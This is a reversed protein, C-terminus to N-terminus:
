QLAGSQKRKALDPKRLHRWLTTRHIGLYHAAAQISGFSDVLNQLSESSSFIDKPIQPPFTSCLETGMKQESREAARNDAQLLSAALVTTLIPEDCIASIRECFNKLERVNGPWPYSELYLKCDDSIQPALGCDDSEHLMHHILPLIDKKRERLPPLYLNLVNLRWYLDNRFQGSKILMPLDRNTAAIIRVDVPIIKDDGLRMVQHEQLVRLLRAQLHFPMESIEDLFITGGHALEFLGPKGKKRAGTFAGDVYGFLESEILSEPIAACNMAVFPRSSRKSASHISQAFVEKGVGSEGHILIAANTSAFRKALDITKQTIPDHAVIDDFHFKATYGKFYMERRIEEEMAQIHSVDQLTAVSSAVAGKVTVPIVNVLLRKNGLEIIKRSEKKEHIVDRLAAPLSADETGMRPSSSSGRAGHDRFSYQSKSLLQRAANNMRSIAGKEDVAIIAESISETIIRLEEARREKLRQAAVIRKAEELAYKVSTEGSEVLVVPLGNRKAFAYTTVGGLLVDMGDNMALKLKKEVDEGISLEYCTIDLSFFPLFDKLQQIMNPFSVVGIRFKEKKVLKEAKKLAIALDRATVQMEVIPINLDAQRLVLVTGGRSIFVEAEEQYKRAVSIASELLGQAVIIKERSAGSLKEVTREIHGDPAIFVIAM